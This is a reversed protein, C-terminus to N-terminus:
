DGDGGQAPEDGLYVYYSAVAGGRAQATLKMVLIWKIVLLNVAEHSPLKRVLISVILVMHAQVVENGLDVRDSAFAGGRALTAKDGLEAHDSALAGDRAQTAEDSLDVRDSAFAGCHRPLKM